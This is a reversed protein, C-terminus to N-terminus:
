KPEKENKIENIMEYDHMTFGVDDISPDESAAKIYEGLEELTAFRKLLMNRSQIVKWWTTEQMSCNPCTRVSLVGFQGFDPPYDWGTNFAEDASLIEYRGCVECRHPFKKSRDIM